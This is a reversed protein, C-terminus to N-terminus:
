PSSPTSVAICLQTTCKLPKYITNCQKELEALVFHTNFFTGGFTSSSACKGVVYCDVVIKQPCNKIITKLAFDMDRKSDIGFQPNVDLLNKKGTLYFLFTDDTSFIAIKDERMNQNIFKIDTRYKNQLLENMEPTFINGRSLAAINTSVMEILTFRRMYAPYVIFIIFLLVYVIAVMQRSTIKKVYSGLILFLIFIFFVSIHFLNHTHSRGVYYVSAFLSLNALFVIAQSNFDPKWKRFFLVVATFYILIAIWFFNQYPLTIMGLGQAAYKHISVFSSIIDVNSYGLLLHAINITIQIAILASALLIVSKVAKKIDLGGSLVFMSVTAAYALLMSIGVDMMWFSSLALLFIFLTSDIKKLKYFLLLSLFIPLWRFPGVEPIVIPLHILSFYNITIISFLGILALAISNGFKFILYFCIFYEAIYFFWILAPLYAISFLHVKTLAALSLVSLYGYQSLVQTFITKGAMIELIPGYFFPYDLGAIPFKAEFTVLAIIAAILGFLIFRLSKKGVLIKNLFFLEFIVTAIFFIYIFFGITYISTDTRIPYPDIQQGLPYGGLSIYFFYVLVLLLPSKFIFPITLKIRKKVFNYYAWISLIFFAALGLYLPIEYPEPNALTPRYFFETVHTPFRANLLDLLRAYVFVWANTFFLLEILPTM